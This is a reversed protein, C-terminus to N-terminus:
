LISSHKKSIHKVQFLIFVNFIDFFVLFYMLKINKFSLHVKLICGFKVRFVFVYILKINKFSSHIKLICGFVAGFV